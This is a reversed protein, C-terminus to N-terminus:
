PLLGAVRSLLAAVDFPKSAYGDARCALAIRDLDVETSVLLLPCGRTLPSAKLGACSVPGTRPQSFPELLILDPAALAVQELSQLRPMGLVRYGELRLIDSMVALNDSDSDIVVIKRQM